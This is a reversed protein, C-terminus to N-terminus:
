SSHAENRRGGRLRARFIMVYGALNLIAWIIAARRLFAESLDPYIIRNLHDIIFSGPHTLEPNHLSRFYYEVDTLPCYWGGLNLVLALGIGALHAVAVWTRRRAWVLGLLLFVIWLFHLVVAAEALLKYAM